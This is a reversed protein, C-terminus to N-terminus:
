AVMTPYPPLYPGAQREVMGMGRVLVMKREFDALHMAPRHKYRRRLESGQDHFYSRREAATEAIYIPHCM